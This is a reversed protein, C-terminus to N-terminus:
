RLFQLFEGEDPVELKSAFSGMLALNVMSFILSIMTFILSIVTFWRHSAFKLTVTASKNWIFNRFDCSLSRLLLTICLQAVQVAACVNILCVCNM